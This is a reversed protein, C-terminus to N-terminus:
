QAPHDYKGCYGIMMGAQTKIRKSCVNEKSNHGGREPVSSVEAFFETEM